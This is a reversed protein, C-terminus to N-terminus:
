SLYPMDPRDPETRDYLFCENPDEKLVMKWRMMSLQFLTDEMVDKKESVYRRYESRWAKGVACYTFM